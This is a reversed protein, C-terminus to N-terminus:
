FYFWQLTFGANLLRRQSLHLGLHVLTEFAEKSLKIITVSISRDSPKLTTLNRIKQFILVQM